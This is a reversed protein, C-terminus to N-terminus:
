GGGLDYTAKENDLNFPFEAKLLSNASQWDIENIFDIRHALAGEYLHIYQRFFLVVM